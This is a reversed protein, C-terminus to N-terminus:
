FFVLCWWFSLSGLTWGRQSILALSSVWVLFTLQWLLYVELYENRLPAELVWSWCQQSERCVSARGLREWHWPHRLRGSSRKRTDQEGHGDYDQHGAFSEWQIKDWGKRTGATLGHGSSQLGPGPSGGACGLKAAGGLGLLHHGVAGYSGHGRGFARPHLGAAGAAQFRQWWELQHIIKQGRRANSSQCPCLTAQPPYRGAGYGGPSWLGLHSAQWWDQHPILAQKRSPLQELKAPNPSSLLNELHRLAPYGRWVKGHKEKCFKSCWFKAGLQFSFFIHPLIVFINWKIGLQTSCLHSYLMTKNIKVDLGM